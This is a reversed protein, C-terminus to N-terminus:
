QAALKEQVSKAPRFAVVKKAPVAVTEGTEPNTKTSAPRDKPVFKGLGPVLVSEGKALDESITEFALDLVAKVKAKPFKTQESIHNILEAKKM